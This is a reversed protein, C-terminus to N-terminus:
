GLWAVMACDSRDTRTLHFPIDTASECRKLHVDGGDELIINGIDLDIPFM